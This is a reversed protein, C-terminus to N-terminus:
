TPSRMPARMSSSSMVCRLVRPYEKLPERAHDANDGVLFEVTTEVAQCVDNLMREAVGSSRM